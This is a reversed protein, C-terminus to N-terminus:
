AAEPAGPAFLRRQMPGHACDELGESDALYYWLGDLQRRDGRFWGTGDCSEAGARHYRWLDRQGNVRGVHVRPHHECWYAVTEQKWATDGGVFVVAAAGPIDAATMGNQVVFALPWGYAALEPAWRHWRELTEDRQMVVDPVAVWRPPREAKAARDCLVRVADFDVPRDNRWAAFAGNDLAYHPWPTRWAGPAYIHGIRDPFRDLLRRAEAGTNNAILVIV